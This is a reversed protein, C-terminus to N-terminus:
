TYAYTYPQSIATGTNSCVESLNQSARAEHDFARLERCFRSHRRPGQPAPDLMDLIPTDRVPRSADKAKPKDQPDM